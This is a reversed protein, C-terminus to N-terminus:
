SLILAAGDAAIRIAAFGRELPRLLPSKPPKAAILCAVGPALRRVDDLSAFRNCFDRM